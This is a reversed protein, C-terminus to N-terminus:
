ARVRGDAQSPWRRRSFSHWRNWAEWINGVLVGALLYYAAGVWEFIAFSVV